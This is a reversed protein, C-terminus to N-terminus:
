IRDILPKVEQFFKPYDKVGKKPEFNFLLNRKKYIELIPATKEEYEKMRASIVVETDDSRIVLPETSGCYDCTGEKKQLLPEM